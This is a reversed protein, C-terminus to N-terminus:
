LVSSWDEGKIYDAMSTLPFKVGLQEATVINSHRGTYGFEEVYRFTDSLEDGLDKPVGQFHQEESVRRYSAKVGLVDGWIKAFEPMTLEEGFALLNTGAPLDVLAKVFPGTDKHTYIFPIRLDPSFTREIVFSGDAQKQPRAPPFIYWNTVYHGIHVSSMRGALEPFRDRIDQEIGAKVDNHYVEKYKGQTAKAVEPLSSFVFRQLTKLVKPSAAAEALNRGQELERDFAYRRPGSSGALDPSGIAAFFHAFYDTNAFIVTANEFAPVLSDKDDLDAEVIEVGKAALAEAPKGTPNRTIGRVKWEPLNLFTDAVSSGQIGTVGVIVVTKSM